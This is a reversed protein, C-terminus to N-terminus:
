GGSTEVGETRRSAPIDPETPELRGGSASKLGEGDSARLLIRLDRRRALTLRIVPHGKMPFWPWQDRSAAVDSWPVSFPPHGPRFPGWMSFHLHSNDATLRAGSRYNTVGMVMFGCRITRGRGAIRAPYLDALRRWGSWVGCLTLFPVWAIVMWALGYLPLHHPNFALWGGRGPASAPAQGARGLPPSSPHWYRYGVGTFHGSDSNYALFSWYVGTDIVTLRPTSGAIGITVRLQRPEEDNVPRDVWACTGPELGQGEPGAATPSAVFTLSLRLAAGTDSPSSLTDFLLRGGGRCNLAYHQRQSVVSNAESQAAAITPTTILILSMLAGRISRVGNM